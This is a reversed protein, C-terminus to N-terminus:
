AKTRSEDTFPPYLYKNLQSNDNSDSVAMYNKKAAAVLADEQSAEQEAVADQIGTSGLSKNRQLNETNRM